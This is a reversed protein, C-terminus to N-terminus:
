VGGVSPALEELRAIAPDTYEESNETYKISPPLTEICGWVSACLKRLISASTRCKLANMKISTKGTKVTHLFVYLSVKKHM